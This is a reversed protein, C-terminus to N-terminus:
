KMTDIIAEALGDMESAKDESLSSLITVQENLISMEKMEDSLFDIM